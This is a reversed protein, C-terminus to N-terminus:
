ILDALGGGRNHNITRPQADKYGKNYAKNVFDWMQQGIINDKLLWKMEYKGDEANKHIFKKIFEQKLKQKM